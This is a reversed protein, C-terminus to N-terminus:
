AYSVIKNQIYKVMSEYEENSYDYKLEIIEWNNNLCKDKKLSDREITKNFGIM